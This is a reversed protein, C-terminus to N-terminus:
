GVIAMEAAVVALQGTVVSMYSRRMVFAMEENVDAKEEGCSGDRGCNVDRKL